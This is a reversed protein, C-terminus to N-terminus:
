SGARASLHSILHVFAGSESAMILAKPRCEIIACHKGAREVLAPDVYFPEEIDGDFSMADEADGAPSSSRMKLGGETPMIKTVKELEGQTVLLARKFAADWKDPIPACRKKLGNLQVHRSIVSGFDLPELDVLTRSYLFAGGEWEVLLGGQLLYLTAQEKPFARNLAILQQCFFTPLIVPAELEIEDTTTYRSITVGDTSHLVADGSIAGDAADAELTVGMHAPHTEDTGVSLLCKDIGDIISAHVKISDTKSTTEPLDFPFDKVNLVPLKLKSRGATLTLAEDGSQVVGITEGSFSALSRALMDGPVCAKLGTKMRVGIATVDNFTVMEDNRFCIHQLIPVYAQAALAPRVMNVAKVLAERNLNLKDQM